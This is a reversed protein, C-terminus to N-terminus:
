KISQKTIVTAYKKHKNTLIFTGPVFKIRTINSPYLNCIVHYISVPSSGPQKNNDLKKRVGFINSEKGSLKCAFDNDRM